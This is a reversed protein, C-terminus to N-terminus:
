QSNFVRGKGKRNWAGVQGNGYEDPRLTIIREGTKNFVVAEGGNETSGLGVLPQGSSNFTTLRGNGNYSFLSVLNQGSTNFTRVTGYGENEVGLSVISQGSPAYTFVSGYNGETQALEVLKNGTAGYTTIVGGNEVTSGLQVLVDEKSRTTVVGHGDDSEIVVSITGYDDYVMFQKTMVVDFVASKAQVGDFESFEWGTAAMSVVGCLAAALVVVAIRLRKTQKEVQELRQEISM